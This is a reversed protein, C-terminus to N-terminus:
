MPLLPVWRSRDNLRLSGGGAGPTTCGGRGKWGRRPLLRRLHAHDVRIPALSRDGAIGSDGECAASEEVEEVVIVHEQRAREMWEQQAPPKDMYSAARGFRNPKAQTGDQQEITAASAAAHNTTM